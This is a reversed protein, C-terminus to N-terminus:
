DAGAAGSGRTRRTSFGRKEDARSPQRRAGSAHQHARATSSDISVEWVVEGVADSKTQAHALLRDWTGDRRWRYLRDALTQWPGYREPVDRWPAGTRVKWLIGNIVTRHDRWQGGRRQRSSPLLPAIVGWAEETLEGRGVMSTSGENWIVGACAYCM